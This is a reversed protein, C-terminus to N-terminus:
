LTIQIAQMAQIQRLKCILVMGDRVIDVPDHFHSLWVLIVILVM